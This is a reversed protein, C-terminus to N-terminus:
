SPKDDPEFVKECIHCKNAHSFETKSHQQFRMPVPNDYMGMIETEEEQLMEILVEGRYVVPEKCHEPTQGIKYYCFGCPVHKNIKVTYSEAPNKDDTTQNTPQGSV